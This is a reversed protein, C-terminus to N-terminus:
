LQYASKLANRVLPNGFMGLRSIIKWALKDKETTLESVATELDFASYDRQDASLKSLRPHFDFTVQTDQVDGNSARIIRSKSGALLNYTENRFGQTIPNPLLLTARIKALEAGLVADWYAVEEKYAQGDLAKILRQKFSYNSGFERTLSNLIQRGMDLLKCFVDAPNEINGVFYGELGTPSESGGVKFYPSRKELRTAQWALYPTWCPSSTLVQMEEPSLNSGVFRSFPIKRKISHSIEPTVLGEKTTM